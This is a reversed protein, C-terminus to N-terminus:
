TNGVYPGAPRVHGTHGITIMPIAVGGPIGAARYGATQTVLQLTTLQESIKTLLDIIAKEGETM